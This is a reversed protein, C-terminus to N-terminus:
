RSVGHAQFQTGPATRLMLGLPPAEFLGIIAADGLAQMGDQEAVTALINIGHTGDEVDSQSSM